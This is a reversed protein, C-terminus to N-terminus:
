QSCKIADDMILSIDVMGRKHEWTNYIYTAIEAVELDTLSPIGPMKKNFSKGDVMIEGEIGHTMICIVKEFNTDMFDSKNLPPYLLGLGSGDKQHCNSCNANYLQEGQLYYQQFKTSTSDNVSGPKSNCSSILFCFSCFLITNYFSVDRILGFGGVTSQPGHVTSGRFCM